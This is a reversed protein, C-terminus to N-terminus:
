APRLGHEGRMADDFGLGIFPSTPQTVDTVRYRGCDDIYTGGNALPTATQPNTGFAIADYPTVTLACPGTTTPARASRAPRPARSRRHQDRRRLAPRLDDAQGGGAGPLSRAAAAAPSGTGVCLTISPDTPDPEDDDDSRLMTPPLIPVCRDGDLMTGAGCTATGTTDAPRM